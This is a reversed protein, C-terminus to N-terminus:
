YFLHREAEGPCKREASKGRPLPRDDKRLSARRGRSRSARGLLKRTSLNVTATLLANAWTGRRELERRRGDKKERARSSGPGAKIDSKMVRTDM